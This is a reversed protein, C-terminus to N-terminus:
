HYFAEKGLLLDRTRAEDEAGDLRRLWTALCPDAFGGNLPGFGSTAEMKRTRAQTASNASASSKFDEARLLHTPELGEGPVM